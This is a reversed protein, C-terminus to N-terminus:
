VGDRAIKLNLKEVEAQTILTKLHLKRSGSSSVLEHQFGDIKSQIKEFESTFAKDLRASYDTKLAKADGVIKELKLIEFRIKLRNEQDPASSSNLQARYNRLQTETNLVHQRVKLLELRYSNSLSSHPSLEGSNTNSSPFTRAIFNEAQERAQALMQPSPTNTSAHNSAQSLDKAALAKAARDNVSGLGKFPKALRAVVQKFGKAPRGAEHSDVPLKTANSLSSPKTPM